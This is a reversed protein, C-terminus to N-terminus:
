PGFYFSIKKKIEEQIPIAILRVRWLSFLHLIVGVFHSSDLPDKHNRENLLKQYFDVVHSQIRDNDMVVEGDIQLSAM